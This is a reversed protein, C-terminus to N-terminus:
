GNARLRALAAPDDAVVHSLTLAYDTDWASLMRTGAELGPLSDTRVDAVENEIASLKAYAVAGMILMLVLIASFSGITRQRMTWDRM